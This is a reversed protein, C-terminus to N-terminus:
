SITSELLVWTVLTVEVEKLITTMNILLIKRDMFRISNTNTPSSHIHKHQPDM